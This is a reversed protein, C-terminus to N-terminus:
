PRRLTRQYSTIAARISRVWQLGDISKDDVIVSSDTAREGVAQWELTKGDALNRIPRPLGFAASYFEKAAAV